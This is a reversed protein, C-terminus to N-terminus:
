ATSSAGGRLRHAARGRTDRRPFRASGATRARRFGNVGPAYAPLLLRFREFKSMRSAPSEHRRRNRGHFFGTTERQRYAGDAGRAAGRGIGGYPEGGEM